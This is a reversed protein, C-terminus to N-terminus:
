LKARSLRWEEATIAWREHDKWRGGIKLYRPSFGEKRFGLRRVLAISRRNEPQINAELRHLKLRDFGVDLVLKMGEAMYGQGAFQAGAYFGLYASQFLGRVIESINIVGVIAGTDLLCVLFGHNREGEIREIYAAWGSDNLPAYAWPCQFHKSRRNMAIVERVDGPMPQRLAVRTERPFVRAEGKM